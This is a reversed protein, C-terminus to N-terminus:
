TDYGEVFFSTIRPPWIDGPQGKVVGNHIEVVKDKVNLTDLVPIICQAYIGASPVTDFEDGNTYVVLKGSTYYGRVCKCYITQDNIWEKHSRPDNKPAIHVEGNWIYFMMREEHFKKVLDQM